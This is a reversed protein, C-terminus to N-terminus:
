KETAGDWHEMGGKLYYMNTIGTAWKETRCRHSSATENYDIFVALADEAMLEIYMPRFEFYGKMVTEPNDGIPGKNFGNMAGPIHAGKFADPHRTDIIHIKRGSNRLNGLMQPTMGECAADGFRGVVPGNWADMGGKLVYVDDIGYNMAIMEKCFNVTSETDEGVLYVDKGKWIKINYLHKVKFIVPSVLKALPIIKGKMATSYPRIDFLFMNDYLFPKDEYHKEMVEPEMLICDKKKGADQAYAEKCFFLVFFFFLWKIFFFSFFKMRESHLLLTNSILLFEKIHYRQQRM